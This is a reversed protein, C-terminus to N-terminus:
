NRSPMRQASHVQEMEVLAILMGAVVGAPGLVKIVPHCLMQSTAPGAQDLDDGL